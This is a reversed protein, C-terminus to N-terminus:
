QRSGSDADFPARHRLEQALKIARRQLYRSIEKFKAQPLSADSAMLAGIVDALAIRAAFYNVVAVHSEPSGGGVKAIAETVATRIEQAYAEQAEEGEIPKKQVKPQYQNLPGAKEIALRALTAVEDIQAFAQEDDVANAVVCALVGTMLRPERLEGRHREILALMEEVLETGGNKDNLDTM